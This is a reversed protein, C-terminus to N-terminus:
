SSAKTLNHGKLYAFVPDDILNRLFCYNNTGNAVAFLYVFFLDVLKERLPKASELAQGAAGCLIWEKIFIAEELERFHENGNVVKGDM